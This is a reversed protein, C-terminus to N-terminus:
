GTTVKVASFLVGAAAGIILMSAGPSTCSGLGWPITRYKLNSPKNRTSIYRRVIGIKYLPVKTSPLECNTDITADQMMTVDFGFLKFALEVRVQLIALMGSLPSSSLTRTM